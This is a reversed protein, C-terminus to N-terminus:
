NPLNDQKLKEQAMKLTQARVIRPERGIGVLGYDKLTQMYFPKYEMVMMPGIMEEIRRKSPFEGAMVCTAFASFIRSCANDERSKARAHNRERARKVLEQCLERFHYSLAWRTTGIKRAVDTLTPTEHSVLASNLEARAMNLDIRQRQKSSSKVPFEIAGALKKKSVHKGTLAGLLLSKMPLGSTVSLTLLMDIRIQTKRALTTSLTSKALGVSRCMAAFNGNFAVKAAYEFVGTATVEGLEPEDLLDVLDRVAESM